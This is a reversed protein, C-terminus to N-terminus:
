GYRPLLYERTWLTDGLTDCRLLIGPNISAGTWNYPGKPKYGVSAMFGGDPTIEIDSIPSFGYNINWEQVGTNVNVKMVYTNSNVIYVRISDYAFSGNCNQSWLVNSTSDTRQLLNGNRILFDGNNMVALRTGHISGTTDIVNGFADITYMSDEILAYYNGTGSEVVDYATHNYM